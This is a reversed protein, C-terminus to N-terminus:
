RRAWQLRLRPVALRRRQAVGVIIVQRRKRGDAVRKRQPDRLRRARRVTQQRERPLRPRDDARPLLIGQARPRRGRNLVGEPLPPTTSCLRVIPLDYKWLKLARM